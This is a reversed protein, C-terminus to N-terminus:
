DLALFIYVIKILLALFDGLLVVQDCHPLDERLCGSEALAALDEDLLFEVLHQLGEDVAVALAEEEGDGDEELPILLSERVDEAVEVVVLPGEVVDFEVSEVFADAPLLFALFHADAVLVQGVGVTEFGGHEGQVLRRDLLARGVTGEAARDLSDLLVALVLPDVVLLRLLLLYLFDILDDLAAILEHIFEHGALVIILDQLLNRGLGVDAVDREVGLGVLLGDLVTREEGGGGFFEPGNGAFLSSVKVKM